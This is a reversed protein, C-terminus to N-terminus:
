NDSFHLVTRVRGSGAVTNLPSSEEQEHEDLAMDQIHQCFDAECAPSHLALDIKQQSRTTTTSIATAIDIEGLSAEESVPRTTQSPRRKASSTASSSSSSTATSPMGPVVLVVTMNDHSGRALCEQLLEDTARAIQQTSIGGV